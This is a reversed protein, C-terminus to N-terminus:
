TFLSVRQNASNAAVVIPIKEVRNLHKSVSFVALGLRLVDWGNVHSKDLSYCRLFLDRGRPTTPVGGFRHGRRDGAM